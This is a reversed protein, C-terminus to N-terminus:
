FISTLWALIPVAARPTSSLISLVFTVFWGGLLTVLWGSLFAVLWGCFFAIMSGRYTAIVWGGLSTVMWGSPSAVICGRYTAIVWAGLFWLWTICLVFAVRRCPTVVRGRHPAVMWGCALFVM